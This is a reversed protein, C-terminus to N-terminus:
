QGVIIKENRRRREQSIIKGFEYYVLGNNPFEKDTLRKLEKPLLNRNEWIFDVLKRPLKRTRFKINKNERYIGILNEIWLWKKEIFDLLDRKTTFRHIDISVPFAKLHNKRNKDLEFPMHQFTRNLYEDNNDIVMCLDTSFPDYLVAEKIKEDEKFFQSLLVPRLLEMDLAYQEALISNLKNFNSYKKNYKKAKVDLKKYEKLLEFIEDDQPLEKQAIMLKKVIKMFHKNRLLDDIYQRLKRSGQTEINREKM